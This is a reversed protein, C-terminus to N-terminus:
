GRGAIGVVRNQEPNIVVVVSGRLNKEETKLTVFLMTRDAYSGADVQAEKWDSVITAKTDDPLFDWAMERYLQYQAETLVSESNEVDSACGILLSFLFSFALWWYTEPQHAHSPRNFGDSITTLKKM